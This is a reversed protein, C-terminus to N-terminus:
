EAQISSSTTVSYRDAVLETHFYCYGDAAALLLETIGGDLSCFLCRLMLSM